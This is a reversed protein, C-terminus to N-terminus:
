SSSVDLQSVISVVEKWDFVNTESIDLEQIKPCRAKIEGPDGANELLLCKLSVVTLDEMPIEKNVQTAKVTIQVGSTFRNQSQYYKKNVLHVFSM